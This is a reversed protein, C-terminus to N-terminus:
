GGKGRVSGLAPYGGPEPNPGTRLLAMRARMGQIEVTQSAIIEEALQRVLPDRGHVLLQKAMDVAGQHHPIMMALFDQDPDGTYGPAHMDKMMRAMGTEMGARFADQAGRSAAAHAPHDSM